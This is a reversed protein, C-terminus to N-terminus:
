ITVGHLSYPIKRNPVVIVLVVVLLLLLVKGEKLDREITIHSM